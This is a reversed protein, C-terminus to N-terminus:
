WEYCYHGACFLFIALQISVPLQPCNLQNFFVPNHKILKILSDFTKPNVYLKCCFCDPSHARWHDLLHLQFGQPNPTGALFVCTTTIHHFCKQFCHKWNFFFKLKFNAISAEFKINSTDSINNVLLMHFLIMHTNLLYTMCYLTM